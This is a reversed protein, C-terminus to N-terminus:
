FLLALCSPLDEIMHQDFQEQMVIEPLLESDKGWQSYFGSIILEFPSLWKASENNWPIGDM